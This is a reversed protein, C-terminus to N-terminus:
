MVRTITEGTAPTNGTSPTRRWRRSRGRTTVDDHAPLPRVWRSFSTNFDGDKVWGDGILVFDRRVGPPPEDPAAFELVIEDGANM